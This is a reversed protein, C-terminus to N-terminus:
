KANQDEKRYKTVTEKLVKGEGVFAIYRRVIADCYKPDIELGFCRRELSQAGILTSGSGLFMDLVIDGRKSSTRIARQALQVPKQTPHDYSRTPDRRVEWLTTENTPGHWVHPGNDKKWGYLCFETQNNYDAYSIAFNPKAWTIVSAVHFGLSDLITHMPGFQRYGNWIYLPAGPELYEVMNTFIKKLWVEYDAQPMNDAYIREWQRSKKPRVNSKPRNGGYYAVNYPPDSNVLSIKESGMLKKLDAPNSSDGCLIRHPGLGILDDRATIPAKNSAVDGEFDFPEEAAPEIYTDFLQNMEPLDFGTLEVDFEPLEKLNDLLHALKEEDWAGQIRNLALNLMKEREVPLDVVSVEVEKAGEEILIKLRQHGAVLTKTRSNFVLPQVLGFEGLSKRLKEYDPDGPKLDIRPNYEAVSIDKIAIKRIEM